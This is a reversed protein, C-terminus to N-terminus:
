FGADASDFLTYRFSGFVMWDTTSPAADNVDEFLSRRLYALQPGFQLSGWKGTYLNWWGGITVESMIETDGDCFTTGAELANVTGTCGNNLRASNGYGFIQGDVTSTGAEFAKEFGGYLYASWKQSPKYIVGALTHLAPIAVPKGSSDSTADPLQAAGYRGLGKGYSVSGTLQLSEGVPILASLGGALGSTTVTGGNPGDDIVFERRLGFAEFHGFSPDLALKVVLDPVTNLSVPTTGLSSDPTEMTVFRVFGNPMIANGWLTQPNEASLGVSLPGFDKVLRIQWQRAFDTGVVTQDDVVPPLNEQLAAIGKGRGATVLSYAQGALFHFGNDGPDDAALWAQRLRTQYGNVQQQSASGGAGLFDIETFAGLRTGDFIDEDVIKLSLRSARASGRFEPNRGLDGQASFPVSAFPTGIDATLNRSRYVFSADVFGGLSIVASGIRAQGPKLIEGGSTSDEKEEKGAIAANSVPPVGASRPTVPAVGTEGTKKKLADIQELLVQVQSNNRSIQEQLEHVLNDNRSIQAQLQRIQNETRNILEQVSNEAGAERSLFLWSCCLLTGAWRSFGSTQTTPLRIM